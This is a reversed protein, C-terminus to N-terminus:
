PTPDPNSRKATAYATHLILTHLMYAAALLPHGFQALFGACLVDFALDIAPPAPPDGARKIATQVPPTFSLLSLMFVLWIYFIALFRAGAINNIFGFYLAAAFLSNSILWGLLRSNM